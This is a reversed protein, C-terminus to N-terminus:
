ETCTFEHIGFVRHVHIPEGLKREKPLGTIRGFIVTPGDETTQQFEVIGRIGPDDQWNHLFNMRCPSETCRTQFNENM